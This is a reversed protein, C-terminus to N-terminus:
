QKNQKVICCGCCCSVLAVVIAVLLFIIAVVILALGLFYAAVSILWIVVALICGIVTLVCIVLLAFDLLFSLLILGVGILFVVVALTAWALAGHCSLDTLPFPQRKYTVRRDTTLGVGLLEYQPDEQEGQATGSAAGYSSSHPDSVPPPLEVVVADADADTKPPRPPPTGYLQEDNDPKPPRPPAGGYENMEVGGPQSAM